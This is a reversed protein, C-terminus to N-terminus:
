RLLAPAGTGLISSTSHCNHQLLHHRMLRTTAKEVVQQQRTYVQQAETYRGAQNLLTGLDDLVPILEASSEGATEETLYLQQQTLEIRAKLETQPDIIADPDTAVTDYQGLRMKFVQLKRQMPDSMEQTLPSEESVEELERAAKEKEEEQVKIEKAHKKVDRSSPKVRQLMKNLRELELELDEGHAAGRWPKAEVM